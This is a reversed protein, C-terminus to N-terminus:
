APKGTIIYRFVTNQRYTGDLQWYQRLTKVFTDRV